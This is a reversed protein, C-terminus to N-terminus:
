RVGASPDSAAVASILGGERMNFEAWVPLHDSIQLAQELTLNYERLFDFVGSRGTYESTAPLQFVLNDYQQTQRTNTPQHSIAAVMGSVRGLEDLQQDDANFDGVLILDDEGRGDDRVSFFVDDLVRIEEAAEDPDTHINALTFTFAEEPAPGRVRFWGVFPPRHLLDDPDDVTYAASRDVEITAQDFVYVFQEKSVTRGVRPGALLAYHGGTANVHELLRQLVDPRESRVEQLAVLDFRRITCALIEMVAPKEIKTPGFAELNFSAIRITGKTRAAPPMGMGDLSDRRVLKLDSLGRIEYYDLLFWGAVALAALALLFRM